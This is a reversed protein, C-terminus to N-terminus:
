FVNAPALGELRDHVRGAARVMGATDAAAGGRVVAVHGDASISDGRRPLRVDAVAAERGLVRATREVARRFPPDGGTYRPSTVLVALAYSGHGAFHRDILERVRVSESGEADWGGGSLAQEARPAVVGLAVVLVAWSIFVLRRRRAAWLGLRGLPGLPRPVTSTSRTTM